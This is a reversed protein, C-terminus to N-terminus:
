SKKTGVNMRGIGTTTHFDDSNPAGSGAWVTRFPCKFLFMWTMQSVSPCLALYNSMLLAILFAKLHIFMAMPFLIGVVMAM